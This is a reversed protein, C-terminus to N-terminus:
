PTYLDAAEYTLYGRLLDNNAWPWPAAATVQTYPGPNAPLYFFSARTTTITIFGWCYNFVAAQSGVWHGRVTLSPSSASMAVPLGLTYSGSGFTSGVAFYINFWVVMLNNVRAYRVFGTTPAAVVPNSVSGQLDLPWEQARGTPALRDIGDQRLQSRRQAEAAANFSFPAERPM